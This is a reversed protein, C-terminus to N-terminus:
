TPTLRRVAMSVGLAGQTIITQNPDTACNLAATKDGQEMVGCNGSTRYAVAPVIPTGRGTGDESADFGEARLTHAVLSDQCDGLRLGEWTSITYSIDGCNTVLHEGPETRFGGSNGGSETGGRVCPAVETGKSRSPPPNWPLSESEFLVEAARRWDGLYGVVFVRRRRQPVGFYQADLVRYATGYGLEALDALISFFDRGAHSKQIRRGDVCRSCLCRKRDTLQVAHSSQIVGIAECIRCGCVSMLGPVNEGLFFQPRQEALIRKVEGWLGSREDAMGGRRGAVSNGQCPWGATLIDTRFDGRVDAVDTLTQEDPFHRRRVSNCKPDQEAAYITTAGCRRLAEEFGGIGAFLSGNTVQNM